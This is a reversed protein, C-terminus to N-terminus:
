VNLSLPMCFVFCFRNRVVQLRISVYGTFLRGQTDSQTGAGIDAM